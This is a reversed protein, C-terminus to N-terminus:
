GCRDHAILPCALMAGFRALAGPLADCHVKFHYRTHVMGAVACCLKIFVVSRLLMIHHAHTHTYHLFGQFSGNDLMLLPEVWLM